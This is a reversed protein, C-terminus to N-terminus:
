SLESLIEYKDLATNFHLLSRWFEAIGQLVPLAKTPSTSQLMFTGNSAYLHQLLAFAIDGSVHLEYKSCTADPTVDTGTLSLFAM